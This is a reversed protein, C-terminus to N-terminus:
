PFLQRIGYTRCFIVYRGGKMGPGIYPGPMSVPREIM